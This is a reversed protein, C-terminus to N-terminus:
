WVGSLSLLLTRVCRGTHSAASRTERQTFAWCPGHTAITLFSFVQLVSRFPTTHWLINASAKCGYAHLTSPGIGDPDVNRRRNTNPLLTDTKIRFSGLPQSRLRELTRSRSARLVPGRRGVADLAQRVPRDAFLSRVVHLRGAPGQHSLLWTLRAFPLSATSLSRFCHHFWPLGPKDCWLLFRKRGFTDSLAAVVPEGIFNLLAMVTSCLGYHVQCFLVDCDSRDPQMM